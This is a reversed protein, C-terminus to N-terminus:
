NKSNFQENVVRQKITFSPTDKWSRLKSPTYLQAKEECHVLWINVGAMKYTSGVSIRERECSM